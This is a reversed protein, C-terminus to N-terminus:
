DLLLGGRFKVVGVAPNSLEACEFEGIIRVDLCNGSGGLQQGAAIGGDAGDEPLLKQGGDVLSERFFVAWCDM